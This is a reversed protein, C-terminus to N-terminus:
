VPFLILHAICEVRKLGTCNQTIQPLIQELGILAEFKKYLSYKAENAYQDCLFVILLKEPYM